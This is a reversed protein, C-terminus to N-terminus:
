GPVPPCGSAAAVLMEYQGPSTTEAGLQLLPKNDGHFDSSGTVLLDLRGALERLQLRVDPRHDPHDVELGALGVRAMEAIVPDPLHRGARATRPHALVPVGGAGRVLRIAATLELEEKGVYYPGGPGTWAPSFAEAISGVAGAEMLALAVHPRGVTGHAIERVREWRIDQGGDQLLQVMREARTVRGALLRDRAAAFDPDVPDFLYALLHVGVRGGQEDVYRCSIEAGRVLTLGAPLADVAETWGATTDHDTIALVDLGQAAARRVLEDPRTTGDSATSHAHLDIRLPLSGLARRPARISGRLGPM